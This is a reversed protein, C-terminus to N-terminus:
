NEISMFFIHCLSRHSSKQHFSLIAFFSVGVGPILNGRLPPMPRLSKERLTNVWIGLYAKRQHLTDNHKLLHLLITLIKKIYLFLSLMRNHYSLFIDGNPKAYIILFKIM